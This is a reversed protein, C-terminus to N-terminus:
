GQCQLSSPLGNDPFGVGQQHAAFKREAFFYPFPFTPPRPTKAAAAAAAAARAASPDFPLFLFPNPFIEAHHRRKMNRKRRSEVFRQPSTAKSAVNKVSIPSKKEDTWCQAKNNDTPPLRTGDGNETNEPTKRQQQPRFHPFLCFLATYRPLKFACGFHKILLIGPRDFYASGQPCIMEWFLCWWSIGEKCKLVIKHSLGTSSAGKLNASSLFLQDFTVRARFLREKKAKKIRKNRMGGNDTKKRKKGSNPPKRCHSQCFCSSSFPTLSLSLFSFSKKTKKIESRPDTKLRQIAQPRFFNM